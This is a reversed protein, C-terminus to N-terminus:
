PARHQVHPSTQRTVAPYTVGDENKGTTTDAAILQARGSASLSTWYVAPQTVRNVSSYKLDAVPCQCHTLPQLM